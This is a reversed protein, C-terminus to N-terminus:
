YFLFSDGDKLQVILGPLGGYGMPGSSIEIEKTYWAEIIYRKISGDKRKRSKKIIAKSCEYTGIKRTEDVLVWEYDKTNSKVMYMEDDFEKENQIEGTELNTYFKGKARAYLLPLSLTFDFRSLGDVEEHYFLSEKENYIFRFHVDMSHESDEEMKDLIPQIEFNKHDSFNIISKIHYIAEANQEQSYSTSTFFSLLLFASLFVNKTKM